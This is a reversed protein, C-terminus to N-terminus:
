QIESLLDKYSKAGSKLDARLLSCGGRRAISIAEIQNPLQM